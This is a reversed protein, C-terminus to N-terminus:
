ESTLVGAAAGIESEAARPIHASPPRDLVERAWLELMMLLWPKYWEVGVAFFEDRVEAVATAELWGRRRTQEDSLADAVVERLPGRLWSGFPMGFGRKLQTDYGEPLLPKAIDLLIRKTGAERYSRPGPSLPDPPTGMKAGDPLSLAADTVVPDLYPVRVELSHAM